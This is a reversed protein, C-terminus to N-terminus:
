GILPPNNPVFTVSKLATSPTEILTLFPVVNPRTPSDPHPFVVRPLAIRRKISGVAPSIKNWPSFMM